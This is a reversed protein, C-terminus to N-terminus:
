LLKQSDCVREQGNFDSNLAVVVYICAVDMASNLFSNLEAVEEKYAKM